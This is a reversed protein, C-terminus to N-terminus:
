LTCNFHNSSSGMELFYLAANFSLESSLSTCLKPKTTKSACGFYESKLREVTASPLGKKRLVAALGDISLESAM